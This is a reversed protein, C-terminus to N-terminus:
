KGGGIIEVRNGFPDDVFFRQHGNIPNSKCTKYGAKEFKDRLKEFQIVQFAPHPKRAPRFDAEVGLHVRLTGEEFWCGGNMQMEVPKEKEPISLLEGYFARAKNEGGAPM